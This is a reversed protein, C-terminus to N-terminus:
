GVRDEWAMVLKKACSGLDHTSTRQCEASCGGTGRLFDEVLVKEILKELAVDSMLICTMETVLRAGEICALPTRLYAVRHLLHENAMTRLFEASM